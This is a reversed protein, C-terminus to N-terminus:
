KNQDLIALSHSRTETMEDGISVGTYPSFAGPSITNVTCHSDQWLEEILISDSSLSVGVRLIFLFYLQFALNTWAIGGAGASAGLTDRGVLWRCSSLDMAEDSGSILFILGVKNLEAPTGLDDVASIRSQEEADADIRVVILQGKELSDMEKDFHQVL